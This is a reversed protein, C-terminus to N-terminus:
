AHKLAARVIHSLHLTGPTRPLTRAPPPVFRKDLLTSRLVPRNGIPDPYRAPGSKRIKM